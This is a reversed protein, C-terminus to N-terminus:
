WVSPRMNSSFWALNELLPFQPYVRFGLHMHFPSLDGPVSKNHATKPTFVSLHTRTTLNRWGWTQPAEVLVCSSGAPASPWWRDAAEWVWPSWTRPCLLLLALSALLALWTNVPWLCSTINSKIVIVDDISGDIRGILVWKPKGLLCCM